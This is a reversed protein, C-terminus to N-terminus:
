LPRIARHCGRANLHIKDAVLVRMDLQELKIEAPVRGIRVRLLRDPGRQHPRRANPWGRSTPDGKERAWARQIPQCRPWLRRNGQDLGTQTGRTRAIHAAQLLM